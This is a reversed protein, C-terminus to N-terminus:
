CSVSARTACCSPMACMEGDRESQALAQGIMAVAASPQGSNALDLSLARLFLSFRMAWGASAFADIQSRLVGLGRDTDGRQIAVAGEFAREWGASHELRHKTALSLLLTAFPEADDLDGTMLAIPCAAMARAYCLSMVHGFSKGEAVSARASRLAQDCLGQLWLVQSFMSRALFSQDYQYRRLHRGDDPAVYRRLVDELRRRAEPQHGRYHLAVAM